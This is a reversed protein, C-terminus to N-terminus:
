YPAPLREDIAEISRRFSMDTESKLIADELQGLDLELENWKKLDNNIAAQIGCYPKLVAVVNAYYSFGEAVKTAIRSIDDRMRKASTKAQLYREVTLDNRLLAPTVEEMMEIGM